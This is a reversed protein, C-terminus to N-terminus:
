AARGEQQQRQIVVPRGSVDFWAAGARVLLFVPGSGRVMAVEEIAANGDFVAFIRNKIYDKPGSSASMVMESIDGRKWSAIFTVDLGREADAYRVHWTERKM